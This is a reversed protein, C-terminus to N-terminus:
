PNIGRGPAQDRQRQQGYKSALVHFSIIFVKFPVFAFPDYFVRKPDIHYLHRSFSILYKKILSSADGEVVCVEKSEKKRTLGDCESLQGIKRCIKFM